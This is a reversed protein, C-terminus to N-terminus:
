KKSSEILKAVAAAFVKDTNLKRDYESSSLSNVYDWTIGGVSTAKRPAQNVSSGRSSLGSSSSSPVRAAVPPATHAAPQTVPPVIPADPQPVVGGADVFLRFEEASMENIETLSKVPVEVVEAEPEPEPVPSPTVVPVVAEDEPEPAPAPVVPQATTPATAAPVPAAVPAPEPTVKPKPEAITQLTLLGDECLDAFAIELNRYTLPKERKELWKELLDSNAQSRVYEPHAATFKAVEGRIFQIREAVDTKQLNRRVVEIPAGIEAELMTRMADTRTAPNNFKEDLELIEEATLSRPQYSPMPAEEDLELLGGIKVAKKTRHLAVTANQHGAAVKEACEKLTKGKFVQPPGVPNGWEDKPQYAAIWEEGVKRFMEDAQPVVPVTSM